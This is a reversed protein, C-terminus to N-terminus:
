GFIKLDYGKTVIKKDFYHKELVRMGKHSSFIVTNEDLEKGLYSLYTKRLVNLTKNPVEPFAQKYFHTFGKTCCSMLTQVSETGRPHFM